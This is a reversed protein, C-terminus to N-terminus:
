AEIVRNENMWPSDGCLCFSVCCFPEVTRTQEHRHGRRQQGLDVQPSLERKAVELVVM